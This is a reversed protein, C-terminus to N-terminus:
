SKELRKVEWRERIEKPTYLRFNPIIIPENVPDNWRAGAASLVAQVKPKLAQVSEEVEKIMQRHQKDFDRNRKHWLDRCWAHGLDTDADFMADFEVKNTYGEQILCARRYFLEGLTM